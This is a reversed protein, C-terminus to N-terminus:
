TVQTEAFSPSGSLQDVDWPILRIAIFAGEVFPAREADWDTINNTPPLDSFSDFTLFRWHTYVKPASDRYSNAGFLLAPLSSFPSRVGAILNLDVGAEANISLSEFAQARAPLPISDIKGFGALQRFANHQVYLNFASMTRLQGLANYVPRQAALVAWAQRDLDSVDHWAKRSNTLASRWRAQAPTLTPGGAPAKRVVPTSRRAVFVAGGLRGSLAGVLASPRWIAM